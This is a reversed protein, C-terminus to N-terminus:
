ITDLNTQSKLIAEVTDKIELPVDELISEPTTAVVASDGGFGELKVSPGGFDVPTKGVGGVGEQLVVMDSSIEGGTLALDELTMDDSPLFSLLDSMNLLSPDISDVGLESTVTALLDGDDIPTGALSSSSDCLPSNGLVSTSVLPSPFSFISHISPPDISPPGIISPNITPTIELTPPVHPPPQIIALPDIVPTEILTPPVLSPTEIITSTDISLPLPQISPPILDYPETTTEISPTGLDIDSTFDHPVSQVISDCNAVSSTQTNISSTSLLVSPSVSDIPLFSTLATTVSVPPILDSQKLPSCDLTSISSSFPDPISLPEFSTISPVSVFPTVLPSVPQDTSQLLPDSSLIPITSPAATPSQISSPNHPITDPIVPKDLKLPDNAPVIVVSSTCPVPETALPIEMAEPNSQSNFSSDSRDSGVVHGNVPPPTTEMVTSVDTTVHMGIIAVTSSVQSISSAVTIPVNTNSLATAMSVATTTSVATPTTDQGATSKSLTISVPVHKQNTPPSTPPAVLTASINVPIAPTTINPPTTQDNSPPIPPAVIDLPITTAPTPPKSNVSQDAETVMSVTQDHLPVASESMDTVSYDHSLPTHDINSPADDGISDDKEDTRPIKSPPTDISENDLLRKLPANKTISLPSDKLIVPDGSSLFTHLAPANQIVESVGVVAVGVEMPTDTQSDDVLPDVGEETVKNVVGVERLSEIAKNEPEMEDRLTDDCKFDM